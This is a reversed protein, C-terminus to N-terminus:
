LLDLFHRLSIQVFWGFFSFFTLLYMNKYELSTQQLHLPLSLEHNVEALITHIHPKLGMGTARKVPVGDGDGDGDGMTM